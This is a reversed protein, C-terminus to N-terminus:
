DESSTRQTIMMNFVNNEKRGGTTIATDTTTNRKICQITGQHCRLLFIICNIASQDLPRGSVVVFGDHSFHVCLM